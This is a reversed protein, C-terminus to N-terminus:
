DTIDELEVADGFLEFDECRTMGDFLITLAKFGHAKLEEKMSVYGDTISVAKDFNRKRISQALFCGLLQCGVHWFLILM